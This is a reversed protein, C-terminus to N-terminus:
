PAVSRVTEYVPILIAKLLQPNPQHDALKRWAYEDLYIPAVKPMPMIELQLPGKFAAKGLYELGVEWPRGNYFNDDLLKGGGLLHAVDGTYDIRLLVDSLGALADRNRDLKPDVRIQWIAAGDKFESDGPATPAAAGSGGKQQFMDMAPRPPAARLFAVSLALAQAPQAFSYGTWPGRTAPKPDSSHGSIRAAPLLFVKQRPSGVSQLHMKDGDFFVASPSMALYEGDGLHFLACQRAQDSTLLLITAKTGRKDTVEIRTNLGPTLNSVLWSSNKRIVSGGVAVVKSATSADLSFEAPISPIAFFVYTAERGVRLRTLLQATSERLNAGGIALNFPWVFYSGSPVDVPRDPLALEGSRLKVRAQFQNRAPMAYQRVYNDVFLFGESGNTRVAVRAQTFDAPDNSQGAPGIPIMPALESGFANLFLNLVRTAGYSKRLQGFEGIPAGFDYSVEPIDNPYGSAVSENLSTLKGAPNSGGHYLYYGYLNVGSGLGAIAKAAIDDASLVPRRRYSSEMGGAEEAAFNPHHIDIADADTPSGPSAMAGMDGIQRQFNFIYNPSPPLKGLGNHWFGDPYGGSFPLVEHVPYDRSPWTTVSYIPVDIGAALAMQKLKLIHEAGRGAGHLPYENELQAGIVAGDDKWLLGRVQQGIQDFLIQAFRIYEPDNSRLNPYKMLWDPFGGNRAEGHVWPGVRLFVYMGHKACLEVFHRLNRRGSWDWQGQIEEHHEWYIYAAVIDVGGAKMKLIEEEWRDEPLQSFHIEGMVPLWPKGDLMLYRSNVQLSHGSASVGGLRFYGTEPAPIAASADIAVVNSAAPRQM